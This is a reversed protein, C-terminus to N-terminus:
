EMEDEPMPFVFHKKQALKEDIYDLVEPHENTPTRDLNVRQLLQAVSESGMNQRGSGEGPNDDEWVEGQARCYNRFLYKQLRTVQLNWKDELTSIVATVDQETFSGASSISSSPRHGHSHRHHKGTLAGGLTRKLANGSKARRADEARDVSSEIERRVREMAKARDQELTPLYLLTYNDELADVLVTFSQLNIDNHECHIELLTDNTKLVEALTTAGQLGLSQYEIRLLRLTKNHGLGRLAVNLGIGFRTADLHAHEGSIDLEELTKNTAFMDKLAECTEMSADYPLSARSIDLSRITTNCKLANILERFHSEKEFDMMRMSVSSPGYSQAITKFLTSGGVKLRNENASVHMNRSQGDDRAMSRFFTALDRGNLGCQNVHLERLIDSKPTALYTSISDVTQENLTTQSLHLEELRWAFLADPAVLPEPGATKQVRTLNLRRIRSFAGLERQFLEPSFRGQAGSINIVEVTSEQIALASLLVDIDHVSLGCEGLELARFHCKRESAADVLHNLDSDALKLGTLIIWDVNTLSKKCLPALAEPIGCNFPQEDAVAIQIPISYSFDLRRLRRSKLALGRIEQCLVPLEQHGTINTPHGSRTALSDLDSGFDDYMKRLPTLNIRAFSISSFSENYRLSRFVALLELASYPASTSPALLQFCPADECQYDVSYCIRSTDIDYGACYAILTRDFCHHDEQPYNPPNMRDDLEEPVDFNFPQCIWEPRLYESAFRLWLAIDEAASSALQLTYPQGVPAKLLLQFNDEEFRVKVATITVIGYSSTSDMESLSTSSSRSSSKNIPILHVKYLGIALYCIMSNLKTLDEASTKSASRHTSRKVARFVHFHDPDYDRDRDLVRAISELTQAQIKRPSGGQSAKSAKRIATIWLESERPDNVQFQLVSAKKAREDLHAVEISFVPRGDDFKSVAITQDLSIASTIDSYTAFQLEQYSGISSSRPVHGRVATNPIGPFMEIAKAQSRFRILHSETLVLFQTRKRFMNGGGALVEGYQLIRDGLLGKLNMDGDEQLSSAKSDSRTLAVKEDQDLSQLSRLSGFVSTRNAKQLTRPRVKPSSQDSDIPSPIHYDDSRKESSNTPIQISPSVDLKQRFISLSKRRRKDAM